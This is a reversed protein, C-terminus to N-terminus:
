APCDSECCGIVFHCTPCVLKENRDVLDDAECQPCQTTQAM